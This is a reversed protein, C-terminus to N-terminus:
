EWLERKTCPRSELCIGNVRLQWWKRWSHDMVTTWEQKIGWTKPSKLQHRFIDTCMIQWPFRGPRPPKLVGSHQASDFLFRARILVECWSGRHPVRPPSGCSKLLHRSIDKFPYNVWFHVENVWGWTTAFRYSNKWSSFMFSSIKFFTPFLQHYCMVEM